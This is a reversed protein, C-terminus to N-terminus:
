LGEDLGLIRRLAPYDRLFLRPNERYRRITEVARDRLYWFDESGDELLEFRDQDRYWKWFRKASIERVKNPIFYGDGEIRIRIKGKPRKSIRGICSYKGRHRLNLGAERLKEYDEDFSCYVKGIGNSLLWEAIYSNEILSCAANHCDVANLNNVFLMLDEYKVDTDHFFEENVKDIVRQNERESWFDRLHIFPYGNEEDDRDFLNVCWGYEMCAYRKTRDVLELIAKDLPDLGEKQGAM